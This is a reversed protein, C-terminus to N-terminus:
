KKNFKNWQEIAENADDIEHKFLTFEKSYPYEEKNRIKSAFFKGQSECMEFERYLEPKVNLYRYVGGRNFYLYLTNNDQFYTSKLINTSDYICDIYEIRNEKNGNSDENLYYQIKKEVIM